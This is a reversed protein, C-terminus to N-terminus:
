QEDKDFWFPVAFGLDFRDAPASKQVMAVAATVFELYQQLISQHQDTKFEKLIYPEVDWQYGDLRRTKSASANYDLVCQMKALAFQHRERLAFHPDGGLGQVTINDAHCKELFDGLAKATLHKPDSDPRPTISGF